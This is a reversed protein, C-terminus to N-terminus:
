RSVAELARFGSSWWAFGGADVVYSEYGELGSLWVTADPGMALAATAYADALTLSPGVVTVSALGSAPQHTHPDFVHSGREYTGSTAVAADSVAVVTTISQPQLPHVIGVHWRSGAVGPGGRVVVDGGANICHNLSGRAALLDSALQVSWGKVLGSPDLAGGPAARVDFFGETAVRLEECLALVEGVRPDCDALAVEGRGLRSIQSAPRYTSFTDDVWALWAFAANLAADLERPALGDRVDISVATGMVQQVRFAGARASGAGPPGAM